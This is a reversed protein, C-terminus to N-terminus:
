RRVYRRMISFIETSVIGPIARGFRASFEDLVALGTLGGDLHYDVIFADPTREGILESMRLLLLARDGPAITRWAEFAAKAAAVAADAEEAGARPVKAMV